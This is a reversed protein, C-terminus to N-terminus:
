SPVARTDSWARSLPFSSYNNLKQKDASMSGIYL